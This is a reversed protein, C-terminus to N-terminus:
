LRLIHSLCCAYNGREKKHEYCNLTTCNQLFPVYLLM